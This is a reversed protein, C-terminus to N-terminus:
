NAKLSAGLGTKWITEFFCDNVQAVEGRMTSATLLEFSISLVPVGTMDERVRSVEEKTINKDVVVGAPKLEAADYAERLAKLDDTAGSVYYGLISLYAPLTPKEAGFGYALLPVRPPSYASNWNDIEAGTPHRNSSMRESM